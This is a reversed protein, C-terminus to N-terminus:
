VNIKAQLLQMLSWLIDMRHLTRDNQGEVVFCMRKREGCAEALGKLITLGLSRIAEAIDLFHSGDEFIEVLMQGNMGLNEVRMPCVKKNNGVEVAWSSGVEHSSSGCIGSEKDVLKSASCKSLKDAHKTVSQMFLMHKITRELLSDISCKSGNPVLERLEKIRDQILQRDRPRPRCSEGPRARKKHMKVPELPREVYGSGRSCSTSSFGRSSRISCTGSSNFSNLTERDFSYGTSSITGIDSSCPEATMETTLLSDVSKCFSKVSNCDNDPRNVNAIVAELLHENGTNSMLLNSTGIGELMEVAMEERKGAEWDKSSNGKQFVPGLAEYLEYGACFRFPTHMTDNCQTEFCKDAYANPLDSLGLLGNQDNYAESALNNRNPQPCETVQGADYSVSGISADNRFTPESKDVSGKGLVRLDSTQGDFKPDTEEWMKGEKQHKIISSECSTPLLNESDDSGHVATEHLGQNNVVELIKNPYGGPHSFICSHDAYKEVSTYLPSWMTRGDECVSRGLNNVCDQFVESGSTRTSIESLCSNEMSNQMSSRLCSAMLEQLESFVDRIHKIVRLDEPISDLSGLQVVGHPAVAAVVITKIGASFQAQWGDRHEPALSTIAAGKDLSLWLHKGTIAVQGVIGEGLSYVHYSMKAVAVGLYNNSYHGDYLNGATSGPSKKEPFGDNDYYADEWTLMMRARHSLKWFVAYKWPTNCCLSRLAQQLQSAM